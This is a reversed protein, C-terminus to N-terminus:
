DKKDFVSKIRDRCLVVDLLIFGSIKATMKVLFSGPKKHVSVTQRNLKGYIGVLKRGIASCISLRGKGGFLDVVFM